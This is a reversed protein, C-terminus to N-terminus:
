QIIEDNFIKKIKFNLGTNLNKYKLMYNKLYLLFVNLNVNKLKIGFIIFSNYEILDRGKKTQTHPSGSFTYRFRKKLKFKFFIFDKGLKLNFFNSFKLWTKFFHSIYFNTYILSKSSQKLKGYIIINM